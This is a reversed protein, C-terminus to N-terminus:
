PRLHGGSCIAVVAALHSCLRGVFTLCFRLTEHVDFDKQPKGLVVERMAM